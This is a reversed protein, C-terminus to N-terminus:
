SSDAQVTWRGDAASTGIVQRVGLQHPVQWGTIIKAGAIPKGDSDQAIGGYTVNSTSPATTPTILAPATTPAAAPKSQAELRIQSLPACLLLLGAVAIWGFRARGIRVPPHLISKFRSELTSCRSMGLALVTAKSKKSWDAVTALLEDAYSCRDEGAAIVSEDCAQESEDRLHNLAWRWLPNFWYFGAALEAVVLWVYDLRKTHSLEHLLVVRLRVEPWDEAGSPLLITPRVLGWTMPMSLPELDQLLCVRRRIFLKAHVASMASQLRAPAPQAARAVRALKIRSLLLRGGMGAAGLIWLALCGDLVFPLVPHVPKSIPISSIQVSPSAQSHSDSISDEVPPELAQTVEHAAVSESRAEVAPLIRWGPLFLLFPLLATAIFGTLWVRHRAAASSRRMLLAIGAVVLMVIMGRVMGDLLFVLVTRSSTHLSDWNM